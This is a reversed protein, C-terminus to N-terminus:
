KDQLYNIERNKEFDYLTNRRIEFYSNWFNRLAQVFALRAQDKETLAINLETIGIKGILYRKVTIDYRKKAITDTKAAIALKQRYITLEKVKILIDQHFNQEAQETTTQILDYNAQATRVQSKARGWDLIPMNFRLSVREQDQPNVYLNPIVEASQTLGYSAFLDANFYNEGKARAVDREAELKQRQFMVVDQRNKLAQELAIKPDVDFQPILVPEVLTIKENGSIKLFNRLKQSANDLDLQAQSLNNRANMQSLEIQLLDNEAIKGLNYRGRSIKYLTDTNSVNLEEIKYRFQALLMNFFVESAKLSLNEMEENYMKRSEEYRLPEIKRDWRLSNYKLIPQRFGVVAPNALYSTYNPSAFVDIRQLQSTVFFEGGTLGVNQSLSLDLSSTALSRKRYVDNGDPQTIPTISSNLDPITGSLTLQPRYNSKYTRYSWYKNRFQTYALKSQPSQKRALEIVQELTYVSEQAHLSGAICLLALLGTFFRNM